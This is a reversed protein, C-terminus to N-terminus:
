IKSLKKLTLEALAYFSIVGGLIIIEKLKFIGMSYVYISNILVFAVINISIVKKMDITYESVSLISSVLLISYFAVFNSFELNFGKRLLIVIAFFAGIKLLGSVIFRTLTVAETNKTKYFCILMVLPLIITNLILVMSIDFASEGLFGSNYLIIISEAFFIARCLGWAQRVGDSLKKGEKILVLFNELINDKININSMKKLLKATRDGTSIGIDALIVSPIDSLNEGTSVVSYEESTFLSVIKSKIAPTIRCLVRVRSLVDIFEDKELSLLEVGSIVEEMGRAIGLEIAHRTAVIKNDDTIMIPLVNQEKLNQVMTKANEKKPNEFGAVGVFVLNSEINEDESPEYNFSRYAFGVTEYAKNSINFDIMRIREIDEDTLDREMGDIMIYKCKELVEDVHGKVSARFNNRAKNVSTSIGKEQDYPVYFVSPNKALAASKFIGRETCYKLLSADVLSGSFKNEERNFTANNNLIGIDLMRGINVDKIDVKSVDEFLKDGTYLVKLNMEEQTLACLKPIFFIDTNGFRELIRMDSVEIDNDKFMKSRQRNYIFESVFVNITGALFWIMLINNQCVEKSIATADLNYKENIYMSISWILSFAFIDKNLGRSEKGLNEGIIKSRLDSVKLYNLLRGIQTDNGIGVVVGVARGDTVRTGRFVMNNIQALTKVRDIRTNYKRVDMDNSTINRENVTLGNSEIIRIDASIINGKELFVIDGVTLIEAKVKDRVGARLINVDTYNLTSLQQTKKKKDSYKKYNYLLIGLILTALVGTYIYSKFILSVIFGIVLIYLERFNLIGRTVGNKIDIHITNEGYTQTNEQLQKYSLGRSKDTNLERIVEDVTSSYFTKM